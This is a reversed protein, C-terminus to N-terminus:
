TGGPKEVGAAEEDNDVVVDGDKDGGLAKEEKEKLGTEESVADKGEGEVNEEGNHGETGTVIDTLEIGGRGDEASPAATVPFVNFVGQNSLRIVEDPVETPDGGEGAAERNAADDAAKKLSRLAQLRVLIHKNERMKKWNTVALKVTLGVESGKM